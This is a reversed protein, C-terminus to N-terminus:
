PEGHDPDLGMGALVDSNLQGQLDLELDFGPDLDITVDMIPSFDM